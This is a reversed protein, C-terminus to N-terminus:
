SISTSFSKETTWVLLKRKIFISLPVTWINMSKFMASHVRFSLSNLRKVKWIFVTCIAENHQLFYWLCRNLVQFSQAYFFWLIDNLFSYRYMTFNTTMRCLVKVLGDHAISIHMICKLHPHLQFLKKYWPKRKNSIKREDEYWNQNHHCSYVSFLQGTTM